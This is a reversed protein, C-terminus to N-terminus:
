VPVSLRRWAVTRGSCPIDPAAEMCRRSVVVVVVVAVVVPQLPDPVTGRPKVHRDLM